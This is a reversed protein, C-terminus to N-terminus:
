LLVIIQWSGKTRCAHMLLHTAAPNAICKFTTPCLHLVLNGFEWLLSRVHYFRYNMHKTKVFSPM